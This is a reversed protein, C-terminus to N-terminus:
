RAFMVRVRSIEPAFPHIPPLFARDVAATRSRPTRVRSSDRRNERHCTM